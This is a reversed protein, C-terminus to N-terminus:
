IKVFWSISIWFDSETSSEFLPSGRYNFGYELKSHDSIIYGVVPSFRLEVESESNQFSPLFENSVKLYSEGPDAAEGNLPIEGTLRYRFRFETDEGESFTQETAFRHGIRLRRWSHVITFQQIARHSTEGDQLQVLYGGALKNNLGVRGSLIMSIETQEFNHGVDSEGSFEGKAFAHQNEAQINLSLRHAIVTNFNIKPLLGTM